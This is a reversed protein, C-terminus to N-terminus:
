DFLAEDRELLLISNQPVICYREENFIIGIAGKQLFIATHGAKALLPINKIQEEKGKRMEDM